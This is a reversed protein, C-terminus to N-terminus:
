FYPQWGSFIRALNSHNTAEQILQNVTYQISLRDDLKGRIISLARDADDPLEDLAGAEGDDSGQIRKAMEASVAWNQLPDHKFVELVTMIVSSRERLVRLTEECSRRFVGDVGSMGFGDILNQTLRFPVLEPIPLRKGQDFAIGLDIHVLEGRAEDMLINSVHRDGLGVIHGIISTTAVSRAYNLRMDFWLSPVKHKQWFLYRLLPPTDDLIKRFADDKEKDRNDPRTKKLEISRLQERARKPVGPAMQDYLNQLFTGLPATNSAFEILGNSNQLPVVKYTRIRLKRRRGQDDRALLGNVLEFAQEMVADQRIDDDGKLLQKHRGGSSDICVVIKPLHIGGATDFHEEYRHITPFDEYRASPDVPLHSTTVPIPLDRVKTLIRMSRVIPLAGKRVSRQNSDLYPAHDKLRFSAWEAYATCALEVAEVRPRLKDSRKTREFIENAAQARSNSSGSGISSERSTSTRRSNRASAADRLANVPYLAHFPHDACLRLVVSRINSASPTPAASKSLRASLQYALFVFKHSPIQALLPKLDAHIGDDHACALWKACFRFVKDDFEDSAHLARAYHELARWLMSRAAEELEAVQREDDRIHAQATSRSRKIPDSNLSGSQLQRDMEAFEIEKRQTYAAARKRRETATRALDEYQMDAFAAFAHHVRARQELGDNRDLARVAPEFCEALIEDTSRLRAEATWEGLKAFTAASKTASQKHATALLTIATSHEGQAWLVDALERDVDLGASDELLSHALTVANYAPQLQGTRRGVRSLELLCARESATAAKYLETSFEEGVQGVREKARIGRLLSVRTSLIREAHDFSLEQPIRALDQALDSAICDKEQLDAFRHVERLALITSITEGSPRPLDISVSGLKEVEHVLAESAATRAVQASRAMRGARMAKYLSVGSTEAANRETPLDWVDTRWALEYPLKPEVDQDGIAGELRAPQFISLALRNFGFAALSTVVGATATPDLSGLQHSQAEHRAGYVRFADNWQGEHRYRLLLAQRTDPSERGYFGDPEDIHSYIEYLLAQGREDLRRDRAHGHSTITFLGNYEHALELFLLGALYAHIRVAGASLAAWSVSLWTDFRSRSSPHLDPRAHKRLHSTTDVIVRVVEDHTAQAALALAPSGTPRTSSGALSATRADTSQPVASTTTGPASFLLRATDFAAVVLARDPDGVRKLVSTTLFGKISHDTQPDVVGAHEADAIWREDINPPPAEGRVDYLLDAFAICVDAALTDRPAIAQMLCWALRGSAPAAVLAGYQPLNRITAVSRFKNIPAFDSGFAHYVTDFDLSSLNFIDGRPWLLAAETVAPEQLQRLLRLGADIDRQLASLLALASSGVAAQEAAVLSHAIRVVQECFASQFPMFAPTKSKALNFLSSLTWQLMAVALEAIDVQDLLGLLGDVLAVLIVPDKSTRHCLSLFLALNILHRRQEDVFPAAHARGLVHHMVSYVVAVNSFVSYERDLWNCVSVAREPEWHPPPPEAHVVLDERLSLIRSFTEAARKDFALAPLPTSASWHAAYATSLVEVLMDDVSSAILQEQQHADTAGAGAAVDLLQARAEDDVSRRQDALRRLLEEDSFIRLLTLAATEGFCDLRGQEASRKLVDCLTLYAPGQDFQLLWSATPKFDAKRADRLTPFGCARYPLRQPLDISPQGAALRIEQWTMYRAYVLYLDALSSFGLRAAVGELTAIIIPTLEPKEGSTRILLQYPARRRRGAVIVLNANCLIQTLLRETEETNTVINERIDSFLRDEPQGTMLCVNFLNATSSTARFRVRFDDDTLMFPIVATPTILLGDESSPASGHLDWYQQQPDLELYRDLLANFQLRVRWAAFVKKRLGEVFWTCLKRADAAFDEKAKNDVVVWHQTTCDLFKLAIRAFREDRAYRYDPLLDNGLHELIAEAQALGFTALGAHVAAFVQDAIVISDEGDSSVLTEVVEELRSVKGAGSEAMDASIFGKICMSVTFASARPTSVAGGAAAAGPTARSGIRVEGFDDARQTQELEKIRQSAQTSGNQTMAFSSPTPQTAQAPAPDAADTLIFRLAALLEGLTQKTEDDKWIARLLNLKMADLEISKVSTSRKPLLHRPIDSAIGPDLLVPYDIAPRDPVSVLIPSLAGVLLAREQPQWKKLTLAPATLTLIEGARRVAQKNSPVRHLAYVGEVVLALAAFDLHRRALDSAMSTWYSEGAQAAATRFGELERLLWQLVKRPTSHELDEPAGGTADYFSPTRFSVEYFSPTRFSVEHSGDKAYPPVRAELYDRIRATESLELTMTAVACDPVVYDHVIPPVDTLGSLRAILSVLGDLSLPDAHPRSQGFNHARTIGDLASWSRTLWSLIKDSLHLRVLRADSAAIALSWELFLCVADSPFNVGGQVDVDRAFSEISDSLGAGSIRDHALLINAVHAAPRCVEPSSLRRQTISWLQEWPSSVSRERKRRSPSLDSALHELPLGVHAIAATAVFTWREVQADPHPLIGILANCIRSCAEPDLSNWHRDVLFLLIQLRHTVVATPLTPDSLSDLLVSLPDEVKRRKGRQTPTLMAEVAREESAADEVEYIRALADAGLELMGWAVAHKEDFGNGIRFTKANYARASMSAADGSHPVEIGLRLHDLDLVYAERWRITPETLVADYLEKARSIATLDSMVSSTGVNLHPVVFPFLYRLAIVVQEKLSANKTAWLALLHRWLHPGIRKMSRQDNLDVEAFVRNLAILASLHATTESPFLRFFRLFKRFIAQAYTLFPSSKSRFAVEIVGLLEIETPNATRRTKAPLAFEEDPSARLAGGVREDEDIDMAAEDAFDQGIKIKDGLVASFCLMVVDTWHREDLHEVHPAYSLVTRLAKMYTLAYPQLKGQVATMQTLHAVIAKATKRSVVRHVREVVTRVLQAADILRKDTAASAKAVSANREKIVVAFLIQLTQLWSHGRDQNVANFNRKSALFDNLRAVGEAREKIRDSQLRELIDKFDRIASM